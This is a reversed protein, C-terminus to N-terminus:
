KNLRLTGSKRTINKSTGKNNTTSSDRHPKCKERGKKTNPGHRHEHANRGKFTRHTVPKTTRSDFLKANTAKPITQGKSGTRSAEETSISGECMALIENVEAETLYRWQGNPIGELTINMIRVRRLKFVEYGLAECMRRIQRNLGQTLVIRFAYKTEQTVKCPLTVTDLINVGSAMQHIFQETIPKNVRVVYEKEHNNGARLIKNVIDGDNTLFILGDSPKDLRGIPFIRKSHGIFDVINGPVDRETTCTIGTPKNLAIYIPKEKYGVPNGDICVTDQETVKTGMQPIEGNITVRGQEILKDAERRSCFGTESIYKNLRKEYPTM